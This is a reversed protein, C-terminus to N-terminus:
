DGDTDGGGFTENLLRAADTILYRICNFYYERYPCQDCMDGDLNLHVYCMNMAKVIEKPSFECEDM